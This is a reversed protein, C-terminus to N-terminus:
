LCTAVRTPARRVCVCVGCCTGREQQEAIGGTRLRMAPGTAKHHYQTLQIIFSLHLSYSSDLCTCSSINSTPAHTHTCVHFCECSRTHTHTRRQLPIGKIVQQLEPMEINSHTVRDEGEQVRRCAFSKGSAHKLIISSETHTYNLRLEKKEQKKKEKTKNQKRIKEKRKKKDM